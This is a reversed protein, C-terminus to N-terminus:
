NPDPLEIVSDAREACLGTGQCRHCRVRESSSALLQGTGLCV